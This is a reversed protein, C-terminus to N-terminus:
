KYVYITVLTNMYQYSYVAMAKYVEMAIIGRYVEMDDM